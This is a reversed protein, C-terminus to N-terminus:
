AISFQNKPPDANGRLVDGEGDLHRKSGNRCRGRGSPRRSPATVRLQHQRAEVRGAHPRDGLDAREGAVQRPHEDLPRCPRPRAPRPRDVRRRLGPEHREGLLVGLEVQDALRAEGRQRLERLQRVRDDDVAVVVVPRHLSSSRSIPSRAGPASSGSSSKWSTTSAARAGRRSSRRRASGRPSGAAAPRCGRRARGRRAPASAGAAQGVRARGLALAPLAVAHEGRDLVEDRAALPQPQDDHRHEEAEADSQCSSAGYAASSARMRSGHSRM